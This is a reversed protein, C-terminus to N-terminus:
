YEINIGENRAFEIVKQLNDNKVIWIHQKDLSFFIAVNDGPNLFLADRVEKPIVIQGKSGISVVWWLKLTGILDGSCNKKDWNM